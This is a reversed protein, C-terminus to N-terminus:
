GGACDLKEAMVKRVKNSIVVHNLIVSYSSLLLSQIDIHRQDEVVRMMEGQSTIHAYDKAIIHKM